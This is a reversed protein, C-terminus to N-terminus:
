EVYQEELPFFIGIDSKQPKITREMAVELYRVYGQEAQLIGVFTHWLKDVLVLYQLM